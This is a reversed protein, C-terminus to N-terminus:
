RVERLFIFAETNRAGYFHGPLAEDVHHAVQWENDAFGDIHGWLEDTGAALASPTDNKGVLVVLLQERMGGWTVAPLVTVDIEGMWEIRGRVEQELKQIQENTM